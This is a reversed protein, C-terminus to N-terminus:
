ETRLLKYLTKRITRVADISCGAIVQEVIGEKNVIVHTPFININTEDMLESQNTIIEYQFNFRTLFKRVQLSDDFTPALFLVDKDQFESVLTNLHPMEKVCGRCRIFWFNYVIYSEKLSKSNIEKGNLTIANFDPFPKGRMLRVDKSERVIRILEAKSLEQSYSYLPISLLIFIKIKTM